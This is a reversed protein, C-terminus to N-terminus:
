GVFIWIFIPWNDVKFPSSAETAGHLWWDLDVSSGEQFGCGCGDEGGGRV